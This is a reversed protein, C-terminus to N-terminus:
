IFSHLCLIPRDTATAHDTSDRDEFGAARTRNGAPDPIKIGLRSHTHTRQTRDQATEPPPGSITSVVCEPLGMRTYRDLTRTWLCSSGRCCPDEARPGRSAPRRRGKPSNQAARSPYKVFYLANHIIFNADSSVIHSFSFLNVVRVLIKLM